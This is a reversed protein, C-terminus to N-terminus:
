GLLYAKLQTLNELSNPCDGQKKRDLYFAHIGIESSAAFDFQWNDGVHVVQKPQVKMTQCMRLYFETTKLQKYDSFSSFVRTFYPEIDRLLRQLFERMSGSAVVLTFRESLSSLVDRVEPYYRVRSQCKDLLPDPAGLELKDFWYRIDYWELRQDGLKQYEEEVIKRAKEINIGNRQAYRQPIAEFWIAYSFDPTVLTGEADFSVIKIEDMDSYM